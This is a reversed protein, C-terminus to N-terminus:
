VGGVGVNVGMALKVSGTDGVETVAVIGAVAVTGVVIGLAVTAADVAVAVADVVTVDVGWSEIALM